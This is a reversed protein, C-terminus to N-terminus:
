IPYYIEMECYDGEKVAMKEFHYNAPQYNIKNAWEEEIFYYIQSLKQMNVEIAPHFGIYTFKAYQHSTLVVADWNKEMGIKNTIHVSPMYYNFQSEKPMERVYGYYHLDKITPFDQLLAAYIKQGESNATGNEMNDTHYIPMMKGALKMIPMTVFQPKFLIGEGFQQHSLCDYPTVIHLSRPQTRYKAPTMGFQKKFARSYSQEYNFGFEAGIDIISLSTNQLLVLSESLKRGRIYEMITQNTALKFIRHLHFKSWGCWKGIDELKLDEKINAEIYDILQSLREM